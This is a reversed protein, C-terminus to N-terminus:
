TASSADAPPSGADPVPAEPEPEPTEQVQGADPEPPLTAGARCAAVTPDGIRPCCLAIAGTGVISLQEKGRCVLGTDCDLDGNNQDCREGEAQKACGWALALCLLVGCGAAGHRRRSVPSLSIHV